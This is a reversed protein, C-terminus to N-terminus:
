RGKAAARQRARLLLDLKRTELREEFIRFRAQQRADLLEDVADYAKRVDIAAREDLDRLAKINTRIANEDTQTAQPGALRRLQQILRHREQQAQRRTQHLRTLRTVFQGYQEDSLQLANQAQLVAYADLMNVVEIPSLGVDAAAAGRGRVPVDQAAVDALTSAGAQATAMVLLVFITQLMEQRM